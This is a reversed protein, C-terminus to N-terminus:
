QLCIAVMCILISFFRLFFLFAFIRLNMKFGNMIVVIIISSSIFNSFFISNVQSETSLLFHFFTFFFFTFLFVNTFKRILCHVSISFILISILLLCLERQGFYMTIAYMLLATIDTRVCRYM